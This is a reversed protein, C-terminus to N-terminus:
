KKNCAHKFTLKDLLYTRRNTKDYVEVHDSSVGVFELINSEFPGVTGLIECDRNVVTFINRTMYVMRQQAVNQENTDLVFLNSSPGAKIGHTAVLGSKTFFYAYGVAHVVTVDYAKHASLPSPGKPIPHEYDRTTVYYQGKRMSLWVSEEEPSCSPSRPREELFEVEPEVPSGVSVEGDDHDM